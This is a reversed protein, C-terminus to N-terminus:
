LGAEELEALTRRRYDEFTERDGDARSNDALRITDTAYQAAAEHADWAIISNM